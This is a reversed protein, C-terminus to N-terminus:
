ATYLCERYETYVPKGDRVIGIVEFRHSRGSFQLQIKSGVKVGLDDLSSFGQVLGGIANQQTLVIVDKGRDDATLDRGALLPGSNLAPNDTDRTLISLPFNRVKGQLKMPVNDVATIRGLNINLLTDYQM